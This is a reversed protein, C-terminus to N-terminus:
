GPAVVNKYEFRLAGGRAPVSQRYILGDRGIWARTQTPASGTASRTTYEYVTTQHTDVIEDGVAHCNSFTNDADARAAAAQIESRPVRTWVDPAVAMYVTDGETISLLREPRDRIKLYQRMGTPTHLTALGAKRIVECDDAQVVLCTMALVGFALASRHAAHRRRM